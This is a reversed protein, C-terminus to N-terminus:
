VPDELLRSMVERGQESLDIFFRRADRQDRSRVVFGDRELLNIYRIATAAANRSGLCLASVSLRRGEAESIILDLLMNWAPDVFLDTGLMQSRRISLDLASRARAVLDRPVCSPPKARQVEQVAIRELLLRPPVQRRVVSGADQGM